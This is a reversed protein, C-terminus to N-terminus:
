SGQSWHTPPYYNHAMQSPPFHGAGVNYQMMHDDLHQTLFNVCVVGFVPTKRWNSYSPMKLSHAPSNVFLTANSPKRFFSHRSRSLFTNYVTWLIQVHINRKDSDFDGKNDRFKPAVGKHMHVGCIIVSINIEYNLIQPAKDNVMDTTTGLSAQPLCCPAVPCRVSPM